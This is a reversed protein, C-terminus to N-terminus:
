KELGKILLENAILQIAVNKKKALAKIKEVTKPELQWTVQQKAM